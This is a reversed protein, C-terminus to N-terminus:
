SNDGQAAPQFPKDRGTKMPRLQLCPLTPPLTSQLTSSAGKWSGAKPVPQRPQRCAEAMEAWSPPSSSGKAKAYTPMLSRPLNQPWSKSCMGRLGQLNTAWQVPQLFCRLLTAPLHQGALAVRFIKPIIQVTQQLDQVTGGQLGELRIWDMYWGTAALDEHAYGTSNADAPMKIASFTSNTFENQENFFCSSSLIQPPFSFLYYSDPAQHLYPKRRRTLQRWM